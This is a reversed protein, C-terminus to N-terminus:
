HTAVAARYLLSQLDRRMDLHLRSEGLLEGVAVLYRLQALLDAVDGGVQLLPVVHSTPCDSSGVPLDEDAVAARGSPTVQLVENLISQAKGPLLEIPLRVGASRRLLSQLFHEIRGREGKEQHCGLVFGSFPLQLRSGVHDM